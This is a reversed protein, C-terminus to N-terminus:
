PTKITDSSSSEASTAGVNVTFKFDQNQCDDDPNATLQVSDNWTFIVTEGKGIKQAWNSPKPANAVQQFTAAGDCAASTVAQFGTLTLTSPLVAYNNENKVSFAVGAKTGPNVTGVLETKLVTLPAASGAKGSVVGTGTSSWYAYAAGAGGVAVVAATIAAASRKTLKRM